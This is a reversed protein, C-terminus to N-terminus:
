TTKPQNNEIESLVKELRGFMRTNEQQAATCERATATMQGMTREQHEHCSESMSKLSEQFNSAMEARSARDEKLHGLFMRVVIIVAVAAGIPGALQTFLQDM